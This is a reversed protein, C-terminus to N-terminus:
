GGIKKKAQSLVTKVSAAREETIDKELGDDKDLVSKVVEKIPIEAFALIAKARLMRISENLTSYSTDFLLEHAKKEFTAADAKIGLIGNIGNVADEDIKKFFLEIVEFSPTYVANTRVRIAKTTVDLFQFVRTNLGKGDSKSKSLRKFIQEPDLSLQLAEVAGVLIQDRLKGDKKGNGADVDMADDDESTLDTVLPSVIDFVEKNWDTTEITKFAAAIKGLTPIAHQQYQKNQRKAERLAIKVVEPSIKNRVEEDKVSKAFEAFAKVVVEKGDWTKGDLAKRLAPWIIEAQAKPIGDIGSALAETAASVARASAHKLNWRPSDLLEVALEMIEKLYLSVARSGGVNDNWTEDALHKVDEQGDYKSIFTFPLIDVALNGFRDTAHKSVAHIIDASVARHRENESTLYLKKSFAMLQLIQKDSAVRATYGAAAAYSSSVTDNRDLVAKEMLKLFRDAYPNYLHRHRTSLSVLVRSCGVKSPLGISSKMASEIAVATKAMADDDLLDLLREVAEMMPSARISNLRMGDIKEETLNYKSANLHIYNIAEPELTSLLGLMREILEPIFPRLIKGSGKKIIQLLTHLAFGQVDKASSELGSGSLLFPLVNKLMGDASKASSEGAELSRVLIGTLVRALSAAAVRVSDKIDDMVKFTQTWIQSLYKEYKSFQRGQVLDGIAACSAQRVRWERVLINHLLDEMIADFNAEITTNSDKVLANWIDNMSRQVNPNPDFRYRYLKPYLKPNEALYGDVSSDSFVNSLGFRGFAARSSWIANNAALSMFRYVLSSDGVEAALSLIDKYTTVSGDGTPLAGPEFLQTDETVNGALNTKNESFSGVLDRVLDDKLARDGKEYVIGLGRSSAEQVLEDRDSLCHKFAAQCARLSGQVEPLPGCFQVLCLLWIVSAKRLSPKSARCDKITRDLIRKLTRTKANTPSPCDMDLELKLVTSDWGSSFCCLAEGVAFHAEMQRIEHLKYLKEDLLHSSSDETLDEPLCVAFRGLAGIAKESGTQAKESIKETMSKITDPDLQLEKQYVPFISLQEVASYAADLLTTDSSDKLISVVVEQLRELPNKLEADLSGRLAIRSITFGLAKVTGNIENIGSGVASKWRQIVEVLSQITASIGGPQESAVLIGFSKAAASRIQENNSKFSPILHNQITAFEYREIFDTPCLTLLSLFINHSEEIGVGRDFTLGDFSTRMLGALALTTSKEDTSVLRRIYDRGGQRSTLDTSTATEIKREWDVDIDFGIGSSSLAQSCFVRHCYSIAPSFASRRERMFGEIHPTADHAFDDGHTHYFPFITKFLETFDPFEVEQDNAIGSPQQGVHKAWLEPRDANLMRFWYPSLGKKGEEAVEQSEGPVGGVALINIWRAITNRYPLCRNAFRVAVYRTSRRYKTDQGVTNEAPKMRELLIQSLDYEEQEASDEMTIDGDTGKQAVGEQLKSKLSFAGLLNSLGEEISVATESGSGDESLSKFFWELLELDRKGGAKASLGILEYALRRLELDVTPEPSPWGQGVIFDTLRQVLLGTVQALEEPKAHRLYFRAFTFIATHLKAAERGKVASEGVALGREVIKTFDGTFSTSVLSRALISLIKVQLAPTVAPNSSGGLYLGYLQAILSKDDIDVNSVTRKTIDEGRDVINSNTDASAFLAPLFREEDKFAGSALFQLTSIKTKSLLLGGETTPDWVGPKGYGTLFDFEAESLGPPMGKGGDTSKRLSSLLLLKGFWAALTKADDDTVELTKRLGDDEKSGKPPLKYQQLAQLLLQFLTAGNKNPESIDASIGKFLVPLLDGRQSDSLRVVGQQIYLLDFHRVLASQPHEKFQKLLAAVPLQISPAKIRTNVHQCISIVKNRVSLHESTLKLLLPPLYTKLLAELKDDSSALAIRMEVKNVLALEREEASASAM